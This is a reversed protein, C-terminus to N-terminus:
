NSVVVSAFLGCENMVSKRVTELAERLVGSDKKSTKRVEMVIQSVFM